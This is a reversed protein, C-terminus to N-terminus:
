RRASAREQAIGAPSSVGHWADLAHKDDGGGRSDAPSVTRQSEAGAALEGLGTRQVVGPFVFAHMLEDNQGDAATLASRWTWGHDFCHVGPESSPTPSSTRESLALSKKKTEHPDTIM